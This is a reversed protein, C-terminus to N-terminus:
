TLPEDRFPQDKCLECWTFDDSFSYARTSVDADEFVPCEPDKHAVKKELDLHAPGHNPLVTLEQAVVSVAWHYHRNSLGTM